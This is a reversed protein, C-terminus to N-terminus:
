YISERSLWPFGARTESVSDDQQLSVWMRRLEILPTKIWGSSLEPMKYGSPIKRCMRFDFQVLFFGLTM